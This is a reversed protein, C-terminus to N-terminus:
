KFKCTTRSHRPCIFSIRYAVRDGLSNDKTIFNMYFLFVTLIILLNELLGKTNFIGLAVIVFRQNHNM